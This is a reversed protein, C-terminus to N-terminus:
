PTSSSAVGGAAVVNLTAPYASAPGETGVRPIAITRLDHDAYAVGGGASTVIALVAPAVLGKVHKSM